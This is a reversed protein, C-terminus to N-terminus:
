HMCTSCWGLHSLKAPMCLSSATKCVCGYRPLCALQEDGWVWTGSLLMGFPLLGQLSHATHQTSCAALQKSGTGAPM